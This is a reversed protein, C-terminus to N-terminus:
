WGSRSSEGNVATQQQRNYVPQNILSGLNSTSNQSLVHLISVPTVVSQHQVNEIQGPDVTGNSLYAISSSSVLPLMLRDFYDNNITTSLSSISSANIYSNLNVNTQLPDGGGHTRFVTTSPNMTGSLSNPTSTLGSVANKGILCINVQEKSSTTSMDVLNESSIPSMKGSNDLTDSLGSKAATVGRRRM